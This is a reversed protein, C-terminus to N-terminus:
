ARIVSSFLVRHLILTEIDNLQEQILQQMKNTFVSHQEDTWNALAEISTIFPEITDVSYAWGVQYQKIANDLQQNGIPYSTLLPIGAALAAFIVYEQCGKSVPLFLLDHQNLTSKIAPFPVDGQYDTKIHKPLKAISAQCEEWYTESVIPGYITFTIPIKLQTLISLVFKLYYDPAIPSLYCLKLPHQNMRVKPQIVLNDESFRLNMAISVQQDKVFNLRNVIDIQEDESLAHWVLGDYLKMMKALQLYLKKKIRAFRLQDSSLEGRPALIMPTNGFQGLRRAWLVRQTLINDFFSNLYIVDPEIENFLEVLPKVALNQPNLYWVKARGIQNWEGLSIRDYPQKSGADRDLTIIHFDIEEGLRNVLNSLPFILQCARYGPLYHQCFVLITLKKRM